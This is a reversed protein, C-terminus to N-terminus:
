KDNNVKITNILLLKSNFLGFTRFGRLFQKITINPINLKRKDFNWLDIECKLIKDEWFMKSLKVLLKYKMLSM